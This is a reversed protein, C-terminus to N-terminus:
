AVDPVSGQTTRAHQILRPWTRAPNPAPWRTWALEVIAKLAEGCMTLMGPLRCMRVV